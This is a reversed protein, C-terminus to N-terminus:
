VDWEGGLLRPVVDDLLRLTLGWLVHGEVDVGEVLLPEPSRTSTFPLMRRARPDGLMDLRPTLVGAIEGSLPLWRTDAPVRGVFPHVRFGTAYTDIPELAALVDVAGPSVGVEEEAERLATALLDRDAPEPKGGPLGIQGGHVGRDGRVVLLLRLGDAEDRFVLVLVAATRLAGEHRAPSTM